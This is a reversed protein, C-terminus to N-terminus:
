QLRGPSRPRSTPRPASSRPASPLAAMVLVWIDGVRAAGGHTLQPLALNRAHGPSDRFAALAARADPAQALNEASLTAAVGYARLRTNLTGSDASRHALRGARALDAAHDAAIRVLTAHARLPALGHAARAAQVQAWLDEARDAGPPRLVVTPRDPPAVGAYVRHNVLVVPGDVSDALVEVGYVGPGADLYVNVEVRRAETWAPRERIAGHPPAVVVRPRFYGRRLAGSLRLVAGPAATAPLPPSFVVGRHVLVVATVQADGDRGRALGYHTPPRRRDLGAVLGLLGRRLAGDDGHRLTFPYVVADGVQAGHLLVRLHAAATDPDPSVAGGVRAVLGAAVTDLAATRVPTGWGHGALLGVVLPPGDPAAAQGGVPALAVLSALILGCAWRSM